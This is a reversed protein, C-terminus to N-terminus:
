WEKDLIVDCRLIIMHAFNAVDAAERRIKEYGEDSIDGKVEAILEKVEELLGTFTTVFTINDWGPKDENEKLKELQATNGAKFLAEYDRKM